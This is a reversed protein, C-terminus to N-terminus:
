CRRKKKEEKIVSEKHKNEDLVVNDEKKEEEGMKKEEEKEMKQRELYQHYYEQALGNFAKEVSGHDKASTEFFLANIKKSFNQGDETSVVQKEFLDSKNGAIGFVVKKKDNIEVVRNYWNQLGEFSAKDTIDYVILAIDAKKMFIKNAIAYNDQGATDWIELSIETNSINVKKISKDPATTTQYELQFSSDLYQSILCTKGVHSNGVIIVKVKKM